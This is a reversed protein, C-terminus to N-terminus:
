HQSALSWHPPAIKSSYVTFIFSEYTTQKETKGATPIQPTSIFNTFNYKIAIPELISM